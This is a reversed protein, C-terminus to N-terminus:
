ERAVKRAANLGTVIAQDIDIYVYQALRGAIVARPESRKLEEVLGRHQERNFGDVDDVPYHKVPAGPYEYGIVTGFSPVLKSMQRTEVRRTWPVDAHPENVVAAPLLPGDSMQYTFETRVGRWPLPERGLFEDLPATVVYADADPLNRLTLPKCFRITEVDELLNEALVQWGGECWGQYPDRFMDKVGDDRLVLRKPAFSSSLFRPEVGWQKLTYGYTTWEYLTKGMIGVAYTEFNRRDPVVPRADLESKIVKWEELEKLEGVQLPWTLTYGRPGCVTVVKHRYDNLDCYERVISWAEESATHFIHPGHPEYPIGTIYGSRLQGGPWAGSEYVTVDWGLRVLEWAAVAGTIGAGVVVCTKRKV